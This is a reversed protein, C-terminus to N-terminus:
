SPRAHRVTLSRTRLLVALRESTRTDPLPTGGGGRRACGAACLRPACMKKLLTLRGLETPIGGTLGNNNRLDSHVLLAPIPPARAM